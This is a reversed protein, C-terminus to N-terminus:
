PMNSQLLTFDEMGRGLLAPEMTLWVGTKQFVREQIEMALTLVARTTGAGFNVLCLAHRPSIGIGEREYGRVFGTNEILWAASLKVYEGTVWNPVAHANTQQHNLFVEFQQADLMPNKFFSGASRFGFDHDMTMGKNRRVSLVAERVKGLPAEDGLRAVLEAYKVPCAEAPKLRFCVRTVIWGQGIGSKFISDRYGFLCAGHDLQTLAGTAPQYVEVWEITDAVSEGYAGINQIPAAGVRGPIGSLCTVGALNNRVTWAVFTDWDCGSNAVVREQDLRQLSDECRFQIIPEKVGDDSIIINSGGGLISWKESKKSALEIAEQLGTLDSVEILLDARGGTGFSSLENLPHDSLCNISKSMPQAHVIKQRYVLTCLESPFQTNLNCLM